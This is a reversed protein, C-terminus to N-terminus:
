LAHRRGGPTEGALGHERLARMARKRQDPDLRDLVLIGDLHDTEHQFVRAMHGDAEVVIERGDLDLGRITVVEARVVEFGYGPISLCGEEYPSSGKTEVIEPNIVVAPGEGDYEDYVFFRKQVGVQCAALGSGPVAHMTVYMAEVVKVLPGDIETVLSTPRRLVPDGFVRIEQMTM